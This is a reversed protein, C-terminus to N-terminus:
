EDIYVHWTHTTKLMHYSFKYWIQASDHLHMLVKDYKFNKNLMEKLKLIVDISIILVILFNGLYCNNPCMHCNIDHEFSTLVWEVTFTIM